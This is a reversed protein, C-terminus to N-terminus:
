GDIQISYKKMGKTAFFCRLTKQFFYINKYAGNNGEDCFFVKFRHSVTKPKKRHKQVMKKEFGLSKKVKQAIKSFFNKLM